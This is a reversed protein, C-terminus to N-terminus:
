KMVLVQHIQALLTHSTFYRYQRQYDGVIDGIVGANQHAFSDFSHIGPVPPITVETVINKRQSTSTSAKEKQQLLSSLSSKSPRPLLNSPPLSSLLTATHPLTSLHIIFVSRRLQHLVTSTTRTTSHHQHNGTRRSQRTFRYRMWCSLKSSISQTLIHMVCVCVLINIILYCFCSKTYFIAFNTIPLCTSLYVLPYVSVCM